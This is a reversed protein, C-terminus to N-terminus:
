ERRFIGYLAILAGVGTCIFGAVTLSTWVPGCAAVLCIGALMVVIGFLTIKLSKHMANMSRVFNNACVRAGRDGEMNIIYCVIM